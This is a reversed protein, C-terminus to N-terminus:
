SDGWEYERSCVRRGIWSMRRGEDEQVAEAGVGLVEGGDGLLELIGVFKGIHAPDEGGRELVM